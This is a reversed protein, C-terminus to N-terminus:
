REPLDRSATKDVAGTCLAKIGQENLAHDYLRVERIKGDFFGQPGFGFRLPADSTMDLTPGDGTANAVQVGDVFLQLDRGRRVAAV